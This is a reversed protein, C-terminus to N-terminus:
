KICDIPITYDGLKRREKEARFKGRNLKNIKDTSTMSLYKIQRENAELRKQEKKKM